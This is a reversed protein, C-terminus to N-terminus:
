KISEIYEKLESTANKRDPDEPKTAAKAATGGLAKAYSLCLMEQQYLLGALPHQRTVMQGMSGPEIIVPEQMVEKRYIDRLELAAAYNDITLLLHDPISGGHDAEVQKTIKDKYTKAKAM